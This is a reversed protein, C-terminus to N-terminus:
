SSERSEGSDSSEALIISVDEASRLVNHSFDQSYKVEKVEDISDKAELKLKLEGGSRLVLKSIISEPILSLASKSLSEVLKAFGPLFVWTISGEVSGLDVDLHEIGELSRMLATGNLKIELKGDSEIELVLIFM